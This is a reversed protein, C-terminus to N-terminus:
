VFFALLIAALIFRYWVFPMMSHKRLFVLLWHIVVLSVVFSTLVGAGIVWTFELGDFLKKLGSGLIVPIALLFSFRAAQDRSLGLLLGGSITAGSRSVGPLLALAQFLGVYGGRRISFPEFGAGNHTRWRWVSEAITMLLSGLILTVAVFTVSRFVTEMYPELLAGLIVAPITGLAIAGLLVNGEIGVEQRNFRRSVLALASVIMLKVDSRFYVLVAVCSALQLVADFALGNADGIGFIERALILHGSSSIPLFETLGQLAGLLVAELVTM